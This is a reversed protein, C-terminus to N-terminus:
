QWESPDSHLSIECVNEKTETTYGLGACGDCITEFADPFADYVPSLTQKGEGRCALCTLKLPLKHNEIM